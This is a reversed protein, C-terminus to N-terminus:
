PKEGTGHAKRLRRADTHGQDWQYAAVSGSPNPNQWWKVGALEAEVGADYQNKM